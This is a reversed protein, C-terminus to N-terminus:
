FVVYGALAIAPLFGAAIFQSKGLLGRSRSLFLLLIGVAISAPVTYENQLSALFLMLGALLWKWWAITSRPASALVWFGFFVVAVQTLYVGGFIVCMQYHCIVPAISLCGAVLRLRPLAPFFLSWVISTAWGVALWGLFHLLYNAPWLQGNAEMWSLISSTVPRDGLVQRFPQGTSRFLEFWGDDWYPQALWALLTTALAFGVLVIVERWGLSLLRAETAASENPIM